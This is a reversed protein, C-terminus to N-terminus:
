SEVVEGAGVLREGQETALRLAGSTDIDIFEGELERDGLRCRLRDGPRHALVRRYREAAWRSDDLRAVAQGLSRTTGLLLQGFDIPGGREAALTTAEIELRDSPDTDVNLGCGVIAVPGAGAAPQTVEILIGGMKRGRVMLDNPWEVECAPVGSSRVADCLSAAALLPLSSRPTERDLPLVWSVYLGGPPGLWRRGCRGRGGTQEFAVLVFSGVTAAEGPLRELLHRAYANTSPLREFVLVTDSVEGLVPRLQDLFDAFRM